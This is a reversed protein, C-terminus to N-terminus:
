RFLRKFFGGDAQPDAAPKSGVNIRVQAGEPLDKTQGYIDATLEFWEAWSSVYVNEVAYDGGLLPLTVFAYCQGDGLIKGASTCADALPRLQWGEEDEELRGRFDEVSSSIKESSAASRSLMHVVGTSDAFFADGFLNTAFPQAAVPVIPRWASLDVKNAAASLFYRETSM